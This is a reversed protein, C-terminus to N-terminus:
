AADADDSQCGEDFALLSAEILRVAGLRVHEFCEDDRSSLQLFRHPQLDDDSRTSFVADLSQAIDTNLLKSLRKGSAFEFAVGELEMEAAEGAEEVVKKVSEVLSPSYPCDDQKLDDETPISQRLDRAAKYVEEHEFHTMAEDDDGVFSVRELHLTNVAVWKNNLAEFHVWPATDLFGNGVDGLHEQIRNLTDWTVPYSKALGGSVGSFHLHVDGFPLTLDGDVAEFDHELPAGTAVARRSPSEEARPLFDGVRAGTVIALDKIYKAPVQGTTEWRAITQQSVKLLDALQGQSMRLITRRQRLFSTM